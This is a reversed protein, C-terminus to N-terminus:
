FELLEMPRRYTGEYPQMRSQVLAGNYPSLLQVEDVSIFRRAYEQQSPSLSGQPVGALYQAPNTRDPVVVTAPPIVPTYVPNPQYVPPHYIPPNPITTGPMYPVPNPTWTQARAGNTSALLLVAAGPVLFLDRFLIRM